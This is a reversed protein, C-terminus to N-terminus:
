YHDKSTGVVQDKINFVGIYGPEERVEKSVTESISHGPNLDETKGMSHLMIRLM